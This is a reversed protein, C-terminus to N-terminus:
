CAGCPGNRGSRLAGRARRVYHFYVAFGCFVAVLIGSVLVTLRWDTEQGGAKAMARLFAWNLRTSHFLLWYLGAVSVLLRRRAPFLVMLTMAVTMEIWSSVHNAVLGAAFAGLLAAHGLATQGFSM